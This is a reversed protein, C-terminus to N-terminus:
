ACYFVCYIAGHRFKGRRHRGNDRQRQRIRFLGL